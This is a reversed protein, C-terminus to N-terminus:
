VGIEELLTKEIYKIKNLAPPVHSDNKLIRVRSYRVYAMYSVFFYLRETLSLMDFLSGYSSPMNRKQACSLYLITSPARTSMCGLMCVSSLPKYKTFHIVKPSSTNLSFLFSISRTLSVTVSISFSLFTGEIWHWTVVYKDTNDPFAQM